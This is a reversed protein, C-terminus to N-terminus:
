CMDGRKIQLWLVLSVLAYVAACIGIVVVYTMPDRAIGSIDLMLEGNSAKEMMKMMPYIISVGAALGLIMGAKEQSKLKITLPVCMWTLANGMIVFLIQLLLMEVFIGSGDVLMFALTPIATAVIGAVIAGISKVLETLIFRGATIGCLQYNLFRTNIYQELCRNHAETLIIPAIVPLFILVCVVVGMEVERDGYIGLLVLGIVAALVTVIGAAIWFGKYLRTYSYILGKM